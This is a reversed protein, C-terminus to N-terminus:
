SFFILNHIWFQLHWHKNKQIFCNSILHALFYYYQNFVIRNRIRNQLSLLPIVIFDDPPEAFTMMGSMGADFPTMWMISVTKYTKIIQILVIRPLVFM